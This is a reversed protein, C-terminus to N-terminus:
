LDTLTLGVRNKLHPLIKRRVYPHVRPLRCINENDFVCYCFSIQITKYSANGHCGM